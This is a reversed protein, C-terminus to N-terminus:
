GRSHITTSITTRWLWLNLLKRMIGLCVLHMSDLPMNTVPKFHPINLLNRTIDPKHYSDDIKQIFDDNSRLPADIQPFCMRNGIHEGEMTYKTCNSYGTHGKVCLVFAKAPADCILAEIRCQIQRDNINIGNECIEKAKDVFDKLFDNADEPKENGHYLRIM